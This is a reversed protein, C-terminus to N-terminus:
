PRGGSAGPSKLGHQTELSGPAEVDTTQSIDAPLPVEEATNGVRHGGGVQSRGREVVMASPPQQYPAWEMRLGLIVEVM